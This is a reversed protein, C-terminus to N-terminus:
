GWAPLTPLDDRELRGYLWALEERPDELHPLPAADGTARRMWEQLRPLWSAVFEDSWDRYSVGTDLDVLHVEVEQWRRSPLEALMRERGGVDRSVIAWAGDPVSRWAADLALASTRVDDLIEDPSRQAGVEIDAARGERGGPYQDVVVGAIAAETRRVHSDANRAMHTLLHAVTWGPLLSPRRVDTQAVVDLHQLLRAHAAVVKDIEYQPRDTM